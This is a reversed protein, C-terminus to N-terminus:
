QGSLAEIQMASITPPAGRRPVLDLTLQEAAEVTFERVLPRYTGGSQERVNLSALVTEGQLVVDFTAEGENDRLECFHLAVRYRGGRSGGPALEVRLELPGTLACADLWPRSSKEITTWDPNRLIPVVASDEDLTVL